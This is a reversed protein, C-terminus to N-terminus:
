GVTATYKVGREGLARLMEDVLGPERAPIEPPHVGPREFRKAVLMQTMVSATYGTTRSM